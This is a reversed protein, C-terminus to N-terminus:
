YLLIRKVTGATAEEVARACACRRTLDGDNLFSLFFLQANKRM